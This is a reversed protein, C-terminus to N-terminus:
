KDLAILNRNLTKASKDNFLKINIAQRINTIRQASMDLLIAIESPIFRLRCLICVLYETESLADSKSKIEAVFLPIIEAVYEMLEKTEKQTISEGRQAIKHLHQVIVSTYLNREIDWKELSVEHGYDRLQLKLNDIEREKQNIYNQNDCILTEYDQQSQNLKEIISNYKQANELKVQLSRHKMRKYLAYAIYLALIIIFCLIVLMLKIKYNQAEAEAMKRQIADYRYISHMRNIESSSRRLAFTDKVICYKVAYDSAKAYEKRKLSVSVMGKYAAEICNYFRTNLMKKYYLEASDLQNRSEHYRARVDYYIEFRDAINGSKDFLGSETEYIKMLPPLKDFENREAYVEMIPGTQMAAEAPRGHAKYAKIIKDSVILVSDLHGLSKYTLCIRASHNLATLTDGAKLSALAAQKNVVLEHKPSTQKRYLNGMQGYLSALTSYDCDSATTDACYVADNYYRLAAPSDGRDRYVCGLLYLSQMRENSDGWTDYYDAVERMISDASMDAYAKNKANALLLYYAMRQSNPFGDAESSVGSLIALASDPNAKIVQQAHAMAEAGRHNDSCSAALLLPLALLLCRLAASLRDTLSSFLASYSNNNYM